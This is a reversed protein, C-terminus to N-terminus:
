VGDKGKGSSKVQRVCHLCVDGKGVCERLFPMIHSARVDLRLSFLFIIDDNNPLQFVFCFPFAKTILLVIKQMIYKKKKSITSKAMLGFIKLRALREASKLFIYEFKILVTKQKTNEAKMVM